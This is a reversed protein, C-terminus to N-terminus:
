QKREYHKKWDKSLAIFVPICVNKATHSKLEVMLYQRHHKIVEMEFLWEKHIWLGELCENMTNKEKSILYIILGIGGFAFLFMIYSIAKIIYEIFEKM